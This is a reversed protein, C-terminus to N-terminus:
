FRRPHARERLAIQELDAGDDEALLFSSVSPDRWSCASCRVGRASQPDLRVLAEDGCRPCTRDARAPFLSCAVIWSSGLMLVLGFALAFLQDPGRTILLLGAAIAALFLPAVLWSAWAELRSHARAVRPEGASRLAPDVADRPRWREGRGHHPERHEGPEREFPIM